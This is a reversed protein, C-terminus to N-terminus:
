LPNNKVHHGCGTEDRRWERARNVAMKEDVKEMLDIKLVAALRFLTIAIDACEMHLKHAKDKDHPMSLLTLLEAVEENMRTAARPVNCPGFTADAWEAITSQDEIM